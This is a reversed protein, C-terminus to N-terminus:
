SYEGQQLRLLLEAQSNNCGPLKLWDNLSARNVDILWPTPPNIKKSPQKLVRLMQRALPDLWHGQAM